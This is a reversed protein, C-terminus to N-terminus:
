WAMWACVQLADFCVSVMRVTRMWISLLLLMCVFSVLLQVGNVYRCRTLVHMGLRM